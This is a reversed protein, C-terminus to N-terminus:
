KWNYIVGEGRQKTETNLTKTITSNYSQYGSTVNFAKVSINNKLGKLVDSKYKADKKVRIQDNIEKIIMNYSSDVGSDISFTWHAFKEHLKYLLDVFSMSTINNSNYKTTTGIYPPDIYWFSKFPEVDYLMNCDKAYNCNLFDLGAGDKFENLKDHLRELNNKYKPYTAGGVILAKDGIRTIDLNKNLRKSYFNGSFSYSRFTLLKAVVEPDKYADKDLKLQVDKWLGNLFSKQVGLDRDNLKVRNTKKDDNYFWLGDDNLFNNKVDREFGSWVDKIDNPDCELVGRHMTYTIIDYDNLTVKHQEPKLSGDNVLEYFVGAAGAFPEVYEDYSDFSKPLYQRFNYKKNFLRSKNGDHKFPPHIKNSKSKKIGPNSRKRLYMDLIDELNYGQRNIYDKNYDYIEKAVRLIQEKTAKEKGQTIHHSVVDIYVMNELDNKGGDKQPISHHGEFGLKKITSFEVRNLSM